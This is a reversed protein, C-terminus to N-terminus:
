RLAEPGCIEVRNRGGEKARYLAEDAAGILSDLGWEEGGDVAAVGMSVTVSLAGEDTRIPNDIFSLRLREALQRTKETGGGPVVIIFEEGGYRGVSDYPRIGSSLRQAVERLVADWTLHGYQDNIRKFHDIDAMSVGLPTGERKSRALESELRDFIASRNWLGTLSDHTAQVHLADKAKNLDSILKEREREARKRDSIDSVVAIIARDPESPDLSTVAIYGDFVSGDKRRLTADCEATESTNLGGYLIEGVRQYEKESFYIAETSQGVFEFENQSRFLKVWADSVWIIKRNKALGIGVPSTAL